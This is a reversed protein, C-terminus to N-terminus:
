DPLCRRFASGTKHNILFSIVFCTEYSSWARWAILIKKLSKLQLETHYTRNCRVVTFHGWFAVLRRHRIGDCAQISGIDRGIHQPKTRNEAFLPLVPLEFWGSLRMRVSLCRSVGFTASAKWYKVILYTQRKADRHAIIIHWSGDFTLSKGTKGASKGPKVNRATKSHFIKHIIVFVIGLIQFDWLFRM